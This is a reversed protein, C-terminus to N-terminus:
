ASAVLETDRRARALTMVPECGTALAQLFDQFMARYGAIDHLGPFLLRTRRGHVAVFLGNSEFAISGATGYIRSVRLGRLPSGIEWSHLLTGLAGEYKLVV